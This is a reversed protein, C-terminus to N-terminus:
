SVNRRTKGDCRSERLQRPFFEAPRAFHKTETAYNIGSGMITRVAGTEGCYQGFADTTLQFGPAVREKLNTIFARTNESTRKGTRHTIILKSDADIALYAFFEGCDTADPEANQQRVRVFCYLEDAQIQEAQVDRIRAEMFRECKEGALELIGLVTRRNLQTLREIARIGVGEILLNIVQVAKDQSVRLNDLPKPPIDTFTKNCQKCCYRQYGKHFGFKFVETKCNHCTVKHSSKRDAM